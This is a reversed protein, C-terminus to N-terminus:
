FGRKRMLFFGLLVTCVAVLLMMAGFEPVSAGPGGNGFGDFHLATFNLKNNACKLNTCKTADACDGNLNAETAVLTGGAVLSSLSTHFGSAYYLRFSACDVGDLSVNASKNYEQGLSSINLSIFMSGLKLQNDFDRRTVNVRGSFRVLSGGKILRPERVAECNTVRSFNTSTTSFTTTNPLGLGPSTNNFVLVRNNGSDTVFLRKGELDYDIEYSLNVASQNLGQTSTDFTAQALVASALMGNSIGESLDFMLVRHNNLESVFLRDFVSDYALGRATRMGSQNTAGATSTFDSQGLVYSAPMGDSIGGSLDYVMVRNNLSGEAVFLRDNGEDYLVALPRNLGTQSATGASTTFNPQGLVYSAPMGDSIGGSLNFVLVRSQQGDVMFLLKGSKKYDINTPWYMGSQNLVGDTSTFDPQGLVYSAEMGDTVGGALNFVLTRNALYDAVFLRKESDDYFIGNPSSLRSKNTLSETNTFNIQGIVHEELMGDTIGGSLNFVILRNGQDDSVFLYQNVNDYHVGIASDMGSQNVVGPNSTFDSQGLVYSALMGNTVNFHEACPAAAVLGLSLLFALSIFLAWKLM